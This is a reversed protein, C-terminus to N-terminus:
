NRCEVFRARGWGNELTPFLSTRMHLICFTLICVILVGLCSFMFVITLKVQMVTTVVVKSGTTAIAFSSGSKRVIIAGYTTYTQSDGSRIFFSLKVSSCFSFSLAIRSLHFTSKRAALRFNSERGSSMFLLHDEAGRDSPRSFFAM